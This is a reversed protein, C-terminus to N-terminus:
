RCLLGLGGFHQAFVREADERNNRIRLFVSLRRDEDLSNWVDKSDGEVAVGALWVLHDEIKHSSSCVDDLGNVVVVLKFEHDGLSCLYRRVRRAQLEMDKELRIGAQNLAKEIEEYLDELTDKEQDLILVVNSFRPRLYIKLEAIAGYRKSEPKIVGVVKKGCDCLHHCLLVVVRADENGDGLVILSDIEGTKEDLIASLRKDIRRVFSLLGNRLQPEFVRLRM